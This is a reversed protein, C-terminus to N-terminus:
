FGSDWFSVDSAGRRDLVSRPSPFFKGFSSPYRPAQPVEMDVDQKVFDGLGTDISDPRNRRFSKRAQFMGPVDMSNDVDDQRMSNIAIHPNHNHFRRRKNPDKAKFTPATTASNIKNENNNNKNKHDATMFCLGSDGDCYSEIRFLPSISEDAINGHDQISEQEM